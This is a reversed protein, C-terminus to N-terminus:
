MHLRAPTLPTRASPPNQAFLPLLAACPPPPPAFPPCLPAFPPCLPPAFPPCLPPAFPPCLPPAFPPRPACLAPTPPPATSSPHQPCVSLRTGLWPRAPPCRAAAISISASFASSYPQLFGRTSPAVLNQTSYLRLSPPSALEITRWHLPNLSELDAYAYILNSIYADHLDLAGLPLSARPTPFPLPLVDPPRARTCYASLPPLPLRALLFTAQYILSSRGSAFDPLSM